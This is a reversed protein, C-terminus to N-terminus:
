RYVEAKYAEFGASLLRHLAERQWTARRALRHYAAEDFVPLVVAAERAQCTQAYREAMKSVAFRLDIAKLVKDTQAETPAKRTRAKAQAM